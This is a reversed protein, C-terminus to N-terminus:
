GDTVQLCMSESLKIQLYMSGTATVTMRNDDTASWSGLSPISGVVHYSAELSSDVESLHFRVVFCDQEATTVSKMM